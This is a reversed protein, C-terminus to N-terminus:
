TSPLLYSKLTVEIRDGDVGAENAVAVVYDGAAAPVLRGGSEVALEQGEDVTDGAIVYCSGSIVVGVVDGQAFAKSSDQYLIGDAQEGAGALIVKPLNAMADKNGDMKVAYYLKDTLDAGAVFTKIEKEM